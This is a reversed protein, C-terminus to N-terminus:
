NAMASFKKGTDDRIRASQAGPSEGQKTQCPSYSGSLCAGIEKTM